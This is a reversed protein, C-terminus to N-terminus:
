LIPCVFFIADWFCFWYKPQNLNLQSEFVQQSKESPDKRQGKSVCM